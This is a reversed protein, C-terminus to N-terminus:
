IGAFPDPAGGPMDMEFVRVTMSVMTYYGLIGIIDILGTREFAAILRDYTEQSLCKATLLEQAADHILAEEADKFKPTGGTRIAEVIAPDLGAEIALAAHAAFELGARWRGVVVLIALESLRAPLSTGYRCYSGLEQAIDTFAPNSLWIRLPGGVRGRPGAVIKDYSKRQEPTLDEVVIDPVRAM